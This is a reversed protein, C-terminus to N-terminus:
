IVVVQEAVISVVMSALRGDSDAPKANPRRSPASEVKDDRAEGSWRQGQGSSSSSSGGSSSSTNSSARKVRPWRKQLCHSATRRLGSVAALVARGTM